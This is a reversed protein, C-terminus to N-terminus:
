NPKVPTRGLIPTGDDAFGVVCGVKYRSEDDPLDKDVKIVLVDGIKLKPILDPPFKTM